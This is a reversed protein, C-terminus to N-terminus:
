PAADLAKIVKDTIDVRPAAYAAEVFVADLKEQEAVHRVMADAKDSVQKLVEDRRQNFEETSTRKRREIDRQLEGAERERRQREATSLIASDKDLAVAMARLREEAGALEQNRKQFEADLSQQAQVFARAERKVREPNVYGIRYSEPAAPQQAAAEGAALVVATAAVGAALMSNFGPIKM